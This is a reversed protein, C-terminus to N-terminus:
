THHRVLRQGECALRFLTGLVRDDSVAPVFVQPGSVIGPRQPERHVPAHLPGHIRDRRETAAGGTAHYVDVPEDDPTGRLSAPRSPGRRGHILADDPARRDYDIQEVTLLGELWM